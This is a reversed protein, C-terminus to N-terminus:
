ESNYFNESGKPTSSKKTAKTVLRVLKIKKRM